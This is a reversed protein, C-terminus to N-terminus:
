YLETQNYIPSKQHTCQSTDHFTSINELFMKHDQIEKWCKLHLKRGSWDKRSTFSRIRKKCHSCIEYYM